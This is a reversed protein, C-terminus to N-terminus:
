VNPLKINDFIIDAMFFNIVENTFKNEHVSTACRAM